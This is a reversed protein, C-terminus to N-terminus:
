EEDDELSAVITVYAAYFDAITNQTKEALLFRYVKGKKKKLAETMMTLALTIVTNIM